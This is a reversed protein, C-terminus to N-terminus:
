KFVQIGTMTVGSWITWADTNVADEPVYTVTVSPTIDLIRRESLTKSFSRSLTASLDSIGRFNGDSGIWDAKYYGAAFGADIYVQETFRLQHTLSFLWYLDHGDVANLEYNLSLSPAGIMETHAVSVFLENIVTEESFWDDRNFYSLHFFGSTLSLDGFSRTYDIILDVEDLSRVDNFQTPLWESRDTMGWSWWSTFSVGADTAISVFPQFAPRDELLNFGRWMYDSVVGTGAAIEGANASSNPFIGAFGLLCVAIYWSCFSDKM